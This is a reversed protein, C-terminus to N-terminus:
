RRTELEAVLKQFDARGHLSDLDHDSKYKTAKKLGHAVSDHLAAMAKDGYEGALKKRTVESIKVDEAALAGARAYFCGANFADDAPDFGAKLLQGAVNATPTYDKMALFVQGLIVLNNRYFERYARNRPQAQIAAHHYPSAEELLKRAGDHDNREFLIGALNVLSGALDNRYDPARPYRTVLYYREKLAARHEQEAHTPQRLEVLLLALSTHMAGLDGRYEPVDPNEDVLRQEEKLAARFEKAAEELQGRKHMLTALNHHEIALALRYTSVRPQTDVLWQAERLATRFEKEVESPSGSKSLLRALSNHSEVLSCRFDYLSPHHEVLDHLEALALRLQEEAKKHQRLDTLCLGFDNRCTVLGRRFSLVSPYEAVLRVLEELAQGYSKSADSRRGSAALLRGANIRGKALDCRNAATPQESVLKQWEGIATRSESEAESTRGLTTLLLSLNHHGKALGSRYEFATPKEQALCQLLDLSRRYELEAENRRGLAALLTSMSNHTLALDHRYEAVGPYDKVMQEDQGIALRLEKEAAAWQGSDMLLSGLNHHSAALRTRYAPEERHGDALRTFISRMESYEHIAADHEGMEARVLALRQYALGRKAELAPDDTVQKVFEEYFPVATQLLDKRLGHFDAEKLRENEAVKTVTKEVADRALLFNHDARERAERAIREKEQALHFNEDAKQRADQAAQEKQRVVYTSVSLTVVATVLVVAAGVMAARHRRGWRGLREVLSDAHAQVPEDALWHELDDALARPGTYRDEPRRAMAKLCIAELAVPIDGKIQRPHRFDGIQAHQAVSDDSVEEFPIHGTLIAYLTAGLSYVDSAPSVLDVRGRAVEPSMFAPTGIIQGIQTTSDDAGTPRLPEVPAEGVAEPRNLAKALGWDVVLTEGYPGLMINGPKLDRHVVGRSHAYEVANCVDVFRGLLRRLSLARERPDRGPKDAEHFVDIAETLSIGRIFRMAYFPRGDVYQGLSYVPVIGPHELGGTLRAELMFRSRISAYDAYPEQIAKLAVERELEADDAVFVEGIGGRAHPRVVRFRRGSDLQAGNPPVQSPELPTTDLKVTSADKFMGHREVTAFIKVNREWFLMNRFEMGPLISGGEM